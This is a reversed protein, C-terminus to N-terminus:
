NDDGDDYDHANDGDDVDDDDIYSDADDNIWFAAPRVNTEYYNRSFACSLKKEAIQLYKSVRREIYDVWVRLSFRTSQATPTVLGSRYCSPKSLYPM